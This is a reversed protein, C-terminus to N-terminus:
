SGSSGVLGGSLGLVQIKGKGKAPILLAAQIVYDRFLVNHCQETTFAAAAAGPQNFIYYSGGRSVTYEAREALSLFELASGDALRYAVPEGDASYNHTLSSVYKTPVTKANDSLEKTIQTNSAFGDAASSSAGGSLYAALNAAATKPAVSLSGADGDALSTLGTLQPLHIKEPLYVSFTRLWSAGAADRRFVSLESFKKNASSVASSVFTMPYSSYAPAAIVPDPQFFPKTPQKNAPDLYREVQYSARSRDLLRGAEIQGILAPDRKANAANNLEDYHTIVALARQNTIAPRPSAKVTQRKPVAVCGTLATLLVGALAIRTARPGARKAQNPRSQEALSPPIIGSAPEVDLSKLQPEGGSCDLRKSRSGFILLALGALLLLLGAGAILMCTAFAGKLEIGVRVQLDVGPKGDANMLVVSYPGDEIPWTLSQSGSGIAKATWWDLQAPAAIPRANGAVERSRVKGFWDVQYLETHRVSKLYSAIDFDRAVGVFLPRADAAAATLRLTPGYYNLLAPVTALAAGKGTLHQQDSEITNDFGIVGFGAVTGVLLAVLGVLGLLLGVLIRVIKM